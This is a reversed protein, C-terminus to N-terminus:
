RMWDLELGDDDPVTTALDVKRRVESTRAAPSAVRVMAVSINDTGGAANAAVILRECADDLSASSLTITSVDEDSVLAWLGDSCLIFLDDPLCDYAHVEPEVDMGRGISRVLLNRGFQSALPEVGMSIVENELTHDRTLLSIEGARIRYCRSDGVHGVTVTPQHESVHLAVLTSASMGRSNTQEVGWEYVTRNANIIGAGILLEDCLAYPPKAVYRHLADATLQSAQDGYLLGGVGDAVIAIRAGADVLVTDENRRRRLGRDTRAAYEAQLARHPNSTARAASM